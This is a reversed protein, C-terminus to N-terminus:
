YKIKDTTVDQVLYQVVVVKAVINCAVQRDLVLVSVTVITMVHLHLHLAVAAGGMM